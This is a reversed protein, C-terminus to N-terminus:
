QIGFIDVYRLVRSEQPVKAPLSNGEREQDEQNGTIAPM